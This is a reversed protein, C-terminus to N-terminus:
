IQPPANPRRVVIPAMEWADIASFAAAGGVSFLRVGLSDDRSPYIRQALAQRGNAFVELVSRDLYVRLQLAEEARLEFPAEQASVRPNDLKTFIFTQPLAEEDLSSKSLEIRLIKREVDYAIATQEQGDPSCRVKIGCEASRQPDITLGLEMCDGRLPQLEAEEDAEVTCSEFRRHARRLRDIEEAPGTRLEGDEDLSLIRPLTMSTPSGYAWAWFIRRGRPDLLTEPAFCAGGPWNMRVHQEPHFQENEFRGLYCRAGRKHSICLLLRRDGLTFLEPCSVDEDAEVDPLDHAMLDGVLTWDSQEDDTCKYVAAVSALEPSSPLPMGGSISYYVNGELWGFPDWGPETMVPNSPLKVFSNLEDDGDNTAICNGANVGHYHIVVRGKRDVFANGSFIGTDPDLPSPSLMPPHLKWELLDASSAHGWWFHRDCDDNSGLIFGLHYRGAWFIAGNPDFPYSDTGTPSTFHFTPLTEPV